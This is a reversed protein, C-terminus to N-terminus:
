LQVTISSQRIKNELLQTEMTKEAALLKFAAANYQQLLM